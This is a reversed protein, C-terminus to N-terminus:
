RKGPAIQGPHRVVAGAAYGDALEVPDHLGIQLGEEAGPEAFLHAHDAGNAHGPQLRGGPDAVGEPLTVPAHDAGADIQAKTQARTGQLAGVWPEHDAGM